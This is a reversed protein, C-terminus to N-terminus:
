RDTLMDDEKQVVGEILKDLRDITDGVPENDKLVNQVISVAFSVGSAIRGHIHAAEWDEVSDYARSLSFLAEAYEDLRKLVKNLNKEREARNM